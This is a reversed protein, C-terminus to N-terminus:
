KTYCYVTLSSILWKGMLAFLVIDKFCIKYEEYTLDKNEWFKAENIDNLDKPNTFIFSISYYKM